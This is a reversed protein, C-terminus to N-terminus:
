IAPQESALPLLGLSLIEPVKLLRRTKRLEVRIFILIESCFFGHDYGTQCSL